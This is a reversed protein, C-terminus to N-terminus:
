ITQITIKMLNSNIIVQHGDAYWDTVENHDIYIAQGKCCFGLGMETEPKLNMQLHQKGFLKHETYINVDKGQMKKLAEIIQRMRERGKEVLNM